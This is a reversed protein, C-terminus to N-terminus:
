QECALSTTPLRRRILAINDAVREVFGDKPGRISVETNSEEPQRSPPQAIDLAWFSQSAPLFLLLAGQYISGAIDDLDAEDTRILSLPLGARASYDLEGDFGTQEYLMRLRPLVIENMLAIDASGETYLLAVERPPRDADDYSL